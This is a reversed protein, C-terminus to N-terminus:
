RGAGGWARSFFRFSTLNGKVFAAISFRVNVEPGIKGIASHRSPSLRTLPRSENLM